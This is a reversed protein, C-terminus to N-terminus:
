NRGERLKVGRKVAAILDELEFPKLLYAYASAAEATRVVIDKPLASAILMPLVEAPWVERIAAALSVGHVGPLNLDLILLDPRESALIRLARDGATTSRVQFGQDRLTECILSLITIDDEVVVVHAPGSRPPRRGGM